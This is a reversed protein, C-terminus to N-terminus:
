VPLELLVRGIHVYQAVTARRPFGGGALHVDLDDPPPPPRQVVFAQLAFRAIRALEEGQQGLRSGAGAGMPPTSDTSLNIPSYKRSIKTARPSAVCCRAPQGPGRRGTPGWRPQGHAKREAINKRPTRAALAAMLSLEEEDSRATGIAGVVALAASRGAERDRIGQSPYRMGTASTM